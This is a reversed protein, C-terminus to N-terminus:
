DYYSTSMSYQKVVNSRYQPFRNALNLARKNRVYSTYPKIGLNNMQNRAYQLCLIFFSIQGLPPEMWGWSWSGVEFITELDKAEPIDTTVFLENFWLVSPEHFCFPISAFGGVVATMIGLKYPLAEIFIGERNAEAIKNFMKQTKEYTVSDVSMIHRRLVEETAERVNLSALIVLSDHNMENYSYHQNKAIAIFDFESATVKENGKDQISSNHSYRLKQITTALAAHHHISSKVKVIAKMQSRSCLRLANM